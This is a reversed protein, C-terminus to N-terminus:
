SARREAGGMTRLAQMPAPGGFTWWLGLFAAAVVAGVVASGTAATVWRDGGFLNAAVLGAGAAGTAAALRRGLQLGIRLRNSQQGVGDRYLLAALVAAGFLQGASFGLAMAGVRLNESVASAGFVMGTAALVTAAINVLAPTRTDDRAYFARTLLLFIGFGLLGPAFGVLGSSLVNPNGARDSITIVRAVLPAAAVLFAGALLTFTAISRVGDGVSSSFALDDGAQAQRSMTPFRTTLVPVSLVTHPLLFVQWATQWIVFNGAVSSSLRIVVLVLLPNLAIYVIAWVSQRGLHVLTPDRPSLPRRPRFGDRWAGVGVALCFVVVGLTTGGALVWKQAGTLLLDPEQSGRMSAFVLYTAIVVLNNLLPAAAPLLFKDRANLLATAVANVLYLVVQPLFLLLFQSGLEIARQRDAAVQIGGLSLEMIQPAFVIGLAAVSGLIVSGHVLVSSAVQDAERRDGGRLLSVIQPVLVAQLAGAALLEYLINPVYNASQYVDNLLTSGLVNLVVWVRVFGTIRSVLTVASM